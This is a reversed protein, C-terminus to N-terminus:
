RAATLATAPSNGDDQFGLYKIKIGKLVGSANVKNFYAQAGVSAGGFEATTGFGSVVVTSVAPSSQSSAIADSAKVQAGSTGSLAALLLVAVAFIAGFRLRGHLTM